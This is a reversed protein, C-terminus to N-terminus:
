VPRPAHRDAAAPGGFRRYLWNGAPILAAATVGGALIDAVYHYRGYITAVCLLVAVALHLWRIRRLYLFSFYVTVIAVAVHSSPFAAGPTEFHDYIFAMLRYFVAAAVSDPVGPPALLGIADLPPNPVINDCLIRPGVVPVFIYTLYCAYFVFSVVSIYHAFQRRDRLLLALGIGGIMFYYSFYAAYLVESVLRAPFRYMLEIGPQWGFFAQELRLFYADLYGRFLMQNLEGSEGYLWVYLLIPYSHRLFDLLRNAPRRAHWAILLHVLGVVGWHTAIRWKWDPVATGHLVLIILAVLLIYGQTAYDIFTYNSTRLGFDSRGLGFSLFEFLLKRLQRKPVVDSAHSRRLTARGHGPKQSFSRWSDREENKM